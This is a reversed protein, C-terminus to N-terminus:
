MSQHREHSFEEQDVEDRPTQFKPLMKTRKAVYQKGKVGDVQHYKKYGSILTLSHQGQGRYQLYGHHLNNAAQTFDETILCWSGRKIKNVSGKMKIGM